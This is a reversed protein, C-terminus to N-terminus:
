RKLLTTPSIEVNHLETSFEIVKMPTNWFATKRSIKAFRTQLMVLLSVRVLNRVHGSQIRYHLGKKFIAHWFSSSGANRM